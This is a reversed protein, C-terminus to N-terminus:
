RQRTAGRRRGGALQATVQTTAETLYVKKSWAAYGPLTARIVVHEYRMTPIKRPAAGVAHGNLTITAGAPSSNVVLTAPPRHLRESVAVPVGAEATLARTVTEYREHSITLAGEGCPISVEALPSEGLVKGRWAIKAEAPETVINAQCEGAAANAPRAAPPAAAARSVRPAPAPEAAKRAPASAAGPAAATPALASAPAAAQAAPPPAAPTAAQASKPAVAAVPPPAASRRPAARTILGILIGVLVCALYPAARVALERKDLKKVSTTVTRVLRTIRATVESIQPRSPGARPAQAVPYAGPDTSGTRGPAFPDPEDPPPRQVTVDDPGADRPRLQTKGLPTTAPPGPPAQTITADDEESEFLTSDIFSGLQEADMESLPNAPLTFSAGPVRIEVPPPTVLPNPPLAFPTGPARPEALASARPMGLPSTAARVTRPPPAGGIMTAALASVPPPVPRGPAEPRTESVITPDSLEPAVPVPVAAAMARRRAMLRRHVSASADEMEVLAVRLLTPRGGSSGAARPPGPRADTVRCRGRMAISQDKLRVVFRAETGIPLEGSTPLVLAGESALTAFKEVFDDLSECRTSVHILPGRAGSPAPPPAAPSM